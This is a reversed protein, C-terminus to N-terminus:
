SRKEVLNAEVRTLYGYEALMGNVAPRMTYPLMGPENIIRNPDSLQEDTWGNKSPEGLPWLKSKAMDKSGAVNKIVGALSAVRARQEPTQLAVRERYARSEAAEDRMQRQHKGAMLRDSIRKEVLARVEGISPAFPSGDPRKHRGSRWDGFAKILEEVPLDELDSRYTQETLTASILSEERKPMMGLMSRLATMGQDHKGRNKGWSCRWTLFQSETTIETANRM